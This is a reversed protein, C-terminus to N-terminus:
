SVQPVFTTRWLRWDANRTSIISHRSGSLGVQYNAGHIPPKPTYDFLSLRATRFPV